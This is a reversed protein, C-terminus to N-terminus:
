NDRVLWYVNKNQKSSHFVFRFIFPSFHIFKSISNIKKLCFSKKVVRSVLYQSYRTYNSCFLLMLQYEFNKSFM